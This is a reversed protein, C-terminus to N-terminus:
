FEEEEGYDNSGAASKLARSAVYLAIVVGRPREAEGVEVLLHTPLLSLLSAVLDLAKVELQALGAIQSRDVVHGEVGDNLQMAAIVGANRTVSM